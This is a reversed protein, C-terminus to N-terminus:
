LRVLKRAAAQQRKWKPPEPEWPPPADAAEARQGEILYESSLRRLLRLVWPPYRVGICRMWAELAMWTLPVQGQGAVTTPGADFLMAVFPQLAADVRPLDPEGGRELCATLRSRRDARQAPTADDGSRPVAHWWALARVHPIM